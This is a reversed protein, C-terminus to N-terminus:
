GRAAERRRHCPTCVSQVALHREPAYGLYHDYEHRLKGPSWVDGCDACPVNNARPLRGTRIAYAVALRAKQKIGDRERRWRRGARNRARAVLKCTAKRGSGRSADLDFATSLHWTKCATCWLEGAAVRSRYGELSLGVRAAAVKEVGLASGM